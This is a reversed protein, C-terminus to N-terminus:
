KAHLRVPVETFGKVFNSRARVPQGVLEVTEFRELIEEWVIRLQMEALRNGMCRHVGFGFSMHHRAHARDILFENAREIEEEDRNASIYWMVVKDGAAIQKGRFEIDELATRRMHALPTQWRIIESVMSPILSPNDRLKQYESPNENLAVVGGSISNRTTDNGGVILLILNGLYEMPTMHKTAEGHALMTVLDLREGPERNVRENWLRTFYELCELLATNREEETVGASGVQSESATAMDSWFTLKYRDEFPFDFLTALMQTTLEISVRDVWNFTEELPLDDLISQVRQRILPEMAMLNRPAVVDQAVKRQQDHQPPDMAIFGPSIDLEGEAVDGIVISGHSSFVKYNREIEMIDNFKTISWFPGFPSNAQYHVPDERRLREFLPGWTDNEFLAPDSVDIEALPISNPDTTSESM